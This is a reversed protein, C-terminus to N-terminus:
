DTGQIFAAADYRAYKISNAVINTCLPMEYPPNSIIWDPVLNQYVVTAANFHFDTPLGLNIDNTIVQLKGEQHLVTAIGGDGACCEVITGRIEPIYFLLTRTMYAPTLYADLTRRM